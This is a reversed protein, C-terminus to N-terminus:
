GRPVAAPRPGGNFLWRMTPHPRVLWHHMALPLLAAVALVVAFKAPAAWPMPLLVSATVVVCLHHFLYISYSAESLYRFVPRPAAAWRSFGAFLLRVLCWALGTRALITVVVM